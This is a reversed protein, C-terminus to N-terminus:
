RWQTKSLYTAARAIGEAATDLSFSRSVTLVESKGPPSDFLSILSDALADNNGIPYSRGVRGDAALDPACGVADSVIIPCGCSLAENCVLGWTERATSPLVLVDAAAYVDPMETQNQFGLCHLRVGLEAARDKLVAELPGSGAVLMSIKSGGQALRGVAEVCDLPRKFEILKGAFLVLREDDWVDLRSRLRKRAEITAASSFRETDVCHPSSFLRNAPYHFHEYYAKNREGVFLAADFARLLFPYCIEKSIRKPFSRPTELHSDGRVMVPIGLRKAAWIGQLLSKLHWGLSLVVDFRGQRLELGIDPTDCGSFHAASPMAAVNRLFRHPYDSTLDVDWDFNAGFGAAAQQEPTPRHAYFVHIDVIEALKRFLPAYYQIPHSTLIGLRM